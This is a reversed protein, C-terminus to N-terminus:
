AGGDENSFCFKTIYYLDQPGQKSIHKEVLKAEGEIPLFALLLPVCLLLFLVLGPVRM